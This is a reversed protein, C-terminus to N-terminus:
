NAMFEHEYGSLEITMEKDNNNGDFFKDNHLGQVDTYRIVGQDKKADYSITAVVQSNQDVWPGSIGSKLKGKVAIADACTDKNRLLSFLGDIFGTKINLEITFCDNKQVSYVGDGISLPGDITGQTGLDKFAVNMCDCKLKPISPTIVSTNQANLIPTSLVPVAPANDKSVALALLTVMLIIALLVFVLPDIKM